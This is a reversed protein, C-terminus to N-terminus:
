KNTVQKDHLGVVFVARAGQARGTSITRNRPIKHTGDLVVHARMEFPQRVRSILSNDGSPSVWSM